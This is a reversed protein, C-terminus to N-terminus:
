ELSEVNKKDVVKHRSRWIVYPSGRDAHCALSPLGAKATVTIFVGREVSLSHNKSVWFGVHRMWGSPWPLLSVVDSM